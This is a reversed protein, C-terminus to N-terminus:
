CIMQTSDPSCKASLPYYIITTEQVITPWATSYECNVVISIGFRVLHTITYSDAPATDIMRPSTTCTSESYLIISVTSEDPSCIAQLYCAMGAAPTFSNSSFSMLCSQPHDDCTPLYSPKICITSFEQQLYLNNNQTGTPVVYWPGTEVVSRTPNPNPQNDIVYLLAVNSYILCSLLFTIFFM